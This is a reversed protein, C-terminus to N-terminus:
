WSKTRQDDGTTDSVEDNQIRNMKLGQAYRNEASVNGTVIAYILQQHEANGATIM